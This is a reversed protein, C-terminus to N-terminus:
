RPEWVPHWDDADNDTLRRFGSGDRAIVALELDGDHVLFALQEADASWAAVAGPFAPNYLRLRGSGDARMTMLSWTGGADGMMYAMTGGDERDPSWAPAQSWTDLPTLRVPNEGDRGLRYIGANGDRDSAFALRRGDPAWTPNWANHTEDTLLLPTREGVALVAIRKTPAALEFAIFRGDPSWVYALQEGPIIVWLAADLYLGFGDELRRAYAMHRGDPSRSYAVADAVDLVRTQESGDPRMSWLALRGGRDSHFFILSGDASWFPRDNRGEHTLLRDDSGDSGIRYIQPSGTRNSVYAIYAARPAPTPTPTATVTPTATPTLTPTATPLPALPVPTPTVTALIGGIVVTPSPVPIPAAGPQGRLLIWTVFALAALGILFGLLIYLWLPAGAPPAAVPPTPPRPTGPGTPPVVSTATGPTTTLALTLAQAFATATPYRREPAKATAMALVTSVAPPLAPNLGRPDPLPQHLHAYLTAQPTEGRFPPQGTLMHYAVIGLSYVDSRGDVALGAAQEPSMYEPTGLVMGAQTIQSTFSAARAIGFDTLLVHGNEQVLINSPKIDRHVIGRQHAYDLAAAVQGVVSLVFDTPLPGPVRRLIDALTEGDVYAMAIYDIGDIHGADHITIINPHNLRAAARAEFLFREVFGADGRLHEYLVKLAVPRELRQHWALYVIAAGGRGLEREIRYPGLIDGPRLM